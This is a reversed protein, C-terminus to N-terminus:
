KGTLPFFDNFHGTKTENRVTELSEEHHLKKSQYKPSLKSKDKDLYCESNSSIQFLLPPLTIKDRQSFRSFRLHRSNLIKVFTLTM